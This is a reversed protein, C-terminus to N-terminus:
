RPAKRTGPPRATHGQAPTAGHGVPANETLIRLARVADGPKIFTEGFILATGIGAGFVLTARVRADSRSFGLDVFAERLLELFATDLRTVALRARDSTTAWVRMATDLDGIDMTDAMERMRRMREFPDPEASLIEVITDVNAGGYFDALADLYEPFDTFHHYFSGSTVKLRKTLSSLKVAPAGGERLLRQGALIWDTRSLQARSAM